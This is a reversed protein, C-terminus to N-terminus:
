GKVFITLRMNNSSAISIRIVWPNFLISPNSVHDRFYPDTNTVMIFSPWFLGLDLPLSFVNKRLVDELFFFFLEDV